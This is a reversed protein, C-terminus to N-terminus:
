YCVTPESIVYRCSMANFLRRIGVLWGVTGAMLYFKVWPIKITLNLPPHPPASSTMPEGPGFTLCLRTMAQWQNGLHLSFRHKDVDVLGFPWTCHLNKSIMSEVWKTRIGPPRWFVLPPFSLDMNNINIWSGVLYSKVCTWKLTVPACSNSVM